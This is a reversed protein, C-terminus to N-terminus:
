RPPQLTHDSREARMRAVAIRRVEPYFIWVLRGAAEQDGHRFSAMLDAVTDPQLSPIM